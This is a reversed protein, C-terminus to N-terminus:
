ITYNIGARFTISSYNNQIFVRYRNTKTIKFSHSLGGTGSVYWAHGDDDMIGLWYTKDLPSVYSAVDVKDGATVRYDGSVHRTNPNVIWDESHLDMLFSVPSQEEVITLNEMDLDEVYCHHEVMGDEAIVDGVRFDDETEEYTGNSLDGAGNGAAFATTTSLCMLAAAMAATLVKSSKQFRKMFKKEKTFHEKTEFLTFFIRRGKKKSYCLSFPFWCICSRHVYFHEAVSVVILM